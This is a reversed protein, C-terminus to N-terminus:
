IRWNSEGKCSELLLSGFYKFAMELEVEKPFIMFSGKAMNM